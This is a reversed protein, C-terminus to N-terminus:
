FDPRVRTTGSGCVPCFERDRCDKEKGAWSCEECCRILDPNPMELVWLAIANIVESRLDYGHLIRNGMQEPVGAHKAWLRLLEPRISKDGRAERAKFEAVWEPPKSYSYAM